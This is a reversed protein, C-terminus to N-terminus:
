KDVEAASILEEEQEQVFLKDPELIITIDDELKIFGSIYEKSVETDINSNEYQSEDFKYIGLIEEVLLGVQRHKYEIVIIKSEEDYSPLKAFLKNTLDIIPLVKGNYKIVGLLFDSAEPLVIPNEYELIRNVYSIQIAFNQNNNSFVIFQEMIVRGIYFVQMLYNKQHMTVSIQVSYLQGVGAQISYLIAITLMLFVYILYISKKETITLIM